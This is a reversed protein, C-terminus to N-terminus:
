GLADCVPGSSGACDRLRRVIRCRVHISLEPSAHAAFDDAGHTGDACRACDAGDTGVPGPWRSATRTRGPIMPLSSTSVAVPRTRHPPESRRRYPLAQADPPESEARWTVSSSRAPTVPRMWAVRSSRKGAKAGTSPAELRVGLEQRADPAQRDVGVRYPLERVVPAQRGLVGGGAQRLRRVVVQPGPTGMRVAAPVGPEGEHGVGHAAQDGPKKMVASPPARSTRVRIVRPVGNWPETWAAPRSPGPPPVGSGSGRRRSRARARM